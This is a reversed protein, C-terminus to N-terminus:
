RKRELLLEIEPKTRKYLRLWDDLRMTVLWPSRNRRHFVTPSGDCFRTADREAQTMAEVINLKENRKCEIHVGPLGTLDPTAGYSVARGPQVDYGCEQLIRSLEIEGRRGKVQSKRGM